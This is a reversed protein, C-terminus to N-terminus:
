IREWFITMRHNLTAINSLLLLQEPREPVDKRARGSLGLFDRTHQVSLRRGVLCNNMVRNMTSNKLANRCNKVREAM